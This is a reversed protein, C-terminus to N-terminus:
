PCSLPRGGPGRHAVRPRGTHSIIIARAHQAGRKDCFVITGNVMAQVTPRFVYEPRNSTITGGEWPGYAAIITPEAESRANADDRPTDAVVIWGAAWPTDHDACRRGDRSRCLTVPMGRKIAESRALFVAHLFGNVAATRQANLRMDGFAPVALAGLVAILALVVLAEVLTIGAARQSDRGQKGRGQM